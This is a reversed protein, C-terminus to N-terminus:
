QLITQAEIAEIRCIWQHWHQIADFKKFSFICRQNLLGSRATGNGIEQPLFCPPKQFNGHLNVMPDAVQGDKVLVHSENGARLTNSKFIWLCLSDSLVVLWDQHTEGDGRAVELMQIRPLHASKHSVQFFTLLLQPSSRCTCSPEMLPLTKGFYLTRQKQLVKLPLEKLEKSEAWLKQGLGFCLSCLDLRTCFRNTVLKGLHREPPFCFPPLPCSILIHSSWLLLVKLHEHVLKELSTEQTKTPTLDNKPKAMQECLPAAAKMKRDNLM